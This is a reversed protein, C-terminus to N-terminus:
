VYDQCMEFHSMPKIKIATIAKYLRGLDQRLIEKPTARTSLHNVLVVVRRVKDPNVTHLLVLDADSAIYYSGIVNQDKDYDTKYIHYGERQAYKKIGWKTLHVTDVAPEHFINLTVLHNFVENILFVLKEKKKKKSMLFNFM